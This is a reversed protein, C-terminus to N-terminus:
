QVKLVRGFGSYIAITGAFSGAIVVRQQSDKDVDEKLKNIDAKIMSVDAKMEMRMEKMEM